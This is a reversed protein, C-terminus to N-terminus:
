DDGLYNDPIYEAIINGDKILTVPENAARTEGKTSLAVYTDYCEKALKNNTYDMKGINGVIVEYKHKM